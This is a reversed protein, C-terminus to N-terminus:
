GEGSPRHRRSRGCFIIFGVPDIKPDTCPSTQFPAEGARNAPLEPGPSNGSADPGDPAWVLIAGQGRVPVSASSTPCPPHRRASARAAERRAFRKPIRGRLRSCCKANSARNSSRIRSTVRIPLAPVPFVRNAKAAPNFRVTFSRSNRRSTTPAGSSKWPDPSQTEARCGRPSAKAKSAAWGHRRSISPSRFM